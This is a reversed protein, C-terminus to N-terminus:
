LSSTVNNPGFSDKNFVDWCLYGVKARFGHIPIELVDEDVATVYIEHRVMDCTGVFIDQRLDFITFPKFRVLVLKTFM